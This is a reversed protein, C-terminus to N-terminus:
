NEGGDAKKLEPEKFSSLFGRVATRTFDARNLFLGKKILADIKKDEVDSIQASVSKVM